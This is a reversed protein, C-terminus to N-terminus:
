LVFEFYRHSKQLQLQLLFCLLEFFQVFVLEFGLLEIWQKLDALLKLVKMILYLLLSLAQLVILVRAFVGRLTVLQAM